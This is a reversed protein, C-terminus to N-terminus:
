QYMSVRHTMPSVVRRLNSITGLYTVRQLVQAVGKRDSQTKLGWTGTSLAYKM